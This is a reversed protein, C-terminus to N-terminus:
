IHLGRYADSIDTCCMVSGETLINCVDDLSKYVFPDCICNTYENVAPSGDGSRSCDTIPRIKEGIDMYDSKKVVAGLAHICRPKETTHMIKGELLEQKLKKSMTEHRTEKLISSYNETEYVCPCDPNVVRFGYVSGELIYLWNEDVDGWMFCSCFVRCPKMTVSAEDLVYVCACSGTFCDKGVMFTTTRPGKSERFTVQLRTFMDPQPWGNKHVHIVERVNSNSYVDILQNSVQMNVEYPFMPDISYDQMVVFDGGTVGEVAAAAPGDITVDGVMVPTIVENPQTILVVPPSM